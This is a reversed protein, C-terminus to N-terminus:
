LELIKRRKRITVKKNEDFSINFMEIWRYLTRVNIGILDAAEKITKSVNLAKVALMKHNDHINFNEAEM